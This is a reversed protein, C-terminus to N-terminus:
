PKIVRIGLKKEFEKISMGNTIMLKGDGIKLSKKNNENKEKAINCKHLINNAILNIQNAISINKNDSILPLSKDLYLYSIYVKTKKQSM